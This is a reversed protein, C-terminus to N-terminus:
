STLGKLNGAPFLQCCGGHTRARDSGCDTDSHWYDPGAGGPFWLDPYGCGYRHQRLGCLDHAIGSRGPRHSVPLM